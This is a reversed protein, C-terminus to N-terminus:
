LSAIVQAAELRVRFDPDTAHAEVATRSLQAGLAAIGRLAKWRVWADTDDLAQELLPRLEQRSAGTVADLVSRRVMRSPDGLLRQWAPAAAEPPADALLAAAVQRRAPQADRSAELIRELDVAQEARLTGLEAWARELRRSGPPAQDQSGVDVSRTVPPEPGAPSGPDDRIFEDTVARLIPGLLTEWRDPRSITVAVFAPGVLVNTVAEFDAFIRAVHPDAAAATASDYSRSPGSHLPPTGFRITRPSPTAEPVVPGDFTQSLKSGSPDDREPGTPSDGQVRLRFRDEEWGWALTLGPALEHRGDGAGPGVADALAEDDDQTWPQDSFFRKLQQKVAALAELSLGAVVSTLQGVAEATLGREVVRARAADLERGLRMM